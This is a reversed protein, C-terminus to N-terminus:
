LKEGRAKVIREMSDRMEKPLKALDTSNFNIQTSDGNSINMNLHLHEIHVLKAGALDGTVMVNKLDAMAEKVGTPIYDWTAVAHQKGETDLICVKERLTYDNRRGKKEKIIYKFEELSQLSRM